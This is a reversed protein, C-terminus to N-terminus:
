NEGCYFEREHQVAAAVEQAEAESYNGYHREVEDLMNFEAQEDM